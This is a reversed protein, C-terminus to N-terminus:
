PCQVTVVMYGHTARITPDVFNVGNGLVGNNGWHLPQSNNNTDTCPGVGNWPGLAQNPQVTVSTSNLAGATVKLPAGIAATQCAPTPCIKSTSQVHIVAVVGVIRCSFGGGISLQVPNINGVGGLHAITGGSASLGVSSATVNVPSNNSLGSCSVPTCGPGLELIATAAPFKEVMLDQYVVYYCGIASAAAAPSALSEIVLPAAWAITGVAAAKRIVDRRSIPGGSQRAPDVETM